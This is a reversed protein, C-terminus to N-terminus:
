QYVSWLYMVQPCNLENLSNRTFRFLSSTESGLLRAMSFPKQYEIVRADKIGALEKAKVVADAIYGIEDILKEQVASDANYISGDALRKIDNPDIMKRREAVIGVFRNYAPTLIREDLYKKQEETIPAFPNPWAKKDGVIMTVPQIGLKNELLEKLVFMQAIVGISGTIATPEAIIEDAAVSVYYGGSAAVQQMFAVVPRNMKRRYQVAENYIRDSAAIGGGPSNVRLILAKVSGDKESAKIQKIIKDANEDDLVGAVNIVAIKASSPGPQIVEEILTGAKGTLFVAALAFLAFLLVINALVSLAFIIRGLIKWISIKKRPINGAGGQEDRPAGQSENTLGNQENYDM